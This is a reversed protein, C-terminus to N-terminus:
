QRRRFSIYIRIGLLTVILATVSIIFLNEYPFLYSVPGIDPSILSCISQPVM